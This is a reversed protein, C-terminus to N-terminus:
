IGFSIRLVLDVAFLAKYWSLIYLHIQGQLQGELTQEGDGISCASDPGCSHHGSGIEACLRQDQM